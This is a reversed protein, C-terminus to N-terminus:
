LFYNPDRTLKRWWHDLNLEKKYLSDYLIYYAELLIASNGERVFPFGFTLITLFYVFLTRRITQLM